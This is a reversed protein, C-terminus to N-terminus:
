RGADGPRVRPRKQELLLLDALVIAAAAEVIVPMRLAICADHRGAAVVEAPGGTRLDITRQPGPLSPPPKVAVRFVIPNGSTIGGGIGGSNNTATRGDAGVIADNAAAGTMRAVAFGAGFEVGKVAPIAFLIHSLLSEVPDFFPEGLGAPVGTAECAVIGGITQKGAVAQEVAAEVDASGGAEVLRAAVRIPEIIKRALAGAAVLGVTLRGSFPGGGRPDNWAGFKLRAPLDAHGPRPTFRLSEYAAPDAAENAFRILIPAGTTYGEFIGSLIEPVDPERRPTTGPRGARRRALDAELDATALPLGAPCGDILVGVAPGHSEGFIAVRFIRGFSNM